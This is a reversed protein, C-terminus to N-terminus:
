SETASIPPMTGNAPPNPQVYYENFPQQANNQELNQQYKQLQQARDDGSKRGERSPSEEKFQKQLEDLQRKGAIEPAKQDSQGQGKDGGSKDMPQNANGRFYRGGTPQ